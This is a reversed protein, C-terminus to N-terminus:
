KPRPENNELVNQYALLDLFAEAEVVVGGEMRFIWVFQNAYPAGSTTMAAGDFRIIVRDQFAWIHHVEPVLPTSLRDVLPLSADAIFSDRGQYTGAVPGSGPITWIVDPSLIDFVSGTQAAWAEFAERVIETNRAETQADRTTAWGPAAFLLLSATLLSSRLFNVAHKMQYEQKHFLPPLRAHQTMHGDETVWLGTFDPAGTV